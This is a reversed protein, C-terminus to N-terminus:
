SSVIQASSPCDQLSPKQYLVLASSMAQVKQAIFVNPTKFYDLKRMLPVDVADDLL